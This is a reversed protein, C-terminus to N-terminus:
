DTATGLTVWYTGTASFLAYIYRPKGAPGDPDQNVMIVPSTIDTYDLRVIATSDSSLSETVEYLPQNATQIDLKGTGGKGDATYPQDTVVTRGDVVETVVHVTNYGATTNSAVTIQDGKKFDHEAEFYIKAQTNGDDKIRNIDVTDSTFARNYFTVSFTGTSKVIRIKYILCEAPCPVAVPVAADSVVHYSQTEAYPM